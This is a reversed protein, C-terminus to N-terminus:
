GELDHHLCTQSPNRGRGAEDQPDQVGGIVAAM